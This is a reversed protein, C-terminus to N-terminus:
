EKIDNSIIGNDIILQRLKRNLFKQCRTNLEKYLAIAKEGNKTLTSGGGGKGGSTTIVLPNDSLRNMSDILKWAKLYSMNMARAAKSISGHKEIEQLLKIRGEGLFTGHQDVVWLRNKVKLSPIDM